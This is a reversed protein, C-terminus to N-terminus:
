LDFGNAFIVDDPLVVSNYEFAGVDCKAGAIRPAGRQDTALPVGTEDICGQLTTTDIAESGALLANTITPGGNAQLPAITDVAVWGFSSLGNGTFTCGAVGQSFLNVGYLEVIGSCDNDSFVANTNGAVLTNVLAFRSGPQALIGGGIGGLEDHDHDADNGVITTNYLFTTSIAYDGFIGGGDSNATNNSITSNIVYLHRSADFSGRSVIGGGYDLARNDHVVSESVRSAGNLAMGGGYFAQNSRITSKLVNLTGISSIGGGEGVAQNAEIVCGIVTLTGSNDIGGGDNAYGNRITLNQLTASHRSDIAIDGLQDADIVTIDAGAGSITTSRNPNGGNGLYLGNGLSLVYVGAPLQILAAGAGSLANAQTVAARLSCNDASTHCIGDGINDDILDDTTTVNFVNDARVHTAALLLMLAFFVVIRAGKARWDIPVSALSLRTGDGEVTMAM